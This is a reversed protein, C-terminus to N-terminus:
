GLDQKPWADIAADFAAVLTNVAANLQAARALQATSDVLENYAEDSPLEIPLGNALVSLTGGVLEYELGGRALEIELAKKNSTTMKQLFRQRGATLAGLKHQLTIYLEREKQTM